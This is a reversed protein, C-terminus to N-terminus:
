AGAEAHDGQADPADHADPADAADHAGRLWPWPFFTHIDAEELDLYREALTYVFALFAAAGVIITVEVLSPVYSAYPYSVTGAATTIPSIQGAMVFLTRDLLVGALALM